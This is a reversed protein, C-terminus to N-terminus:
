LIPGGGSPGALNSELGPSVPAKASPNEMDTIIQLLSQKLEPPLAMIKPILIDDINGGGGAGPRIAPGNMMPGGTMSGLAM